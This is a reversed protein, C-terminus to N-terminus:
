GLEDERIREAEAEDDEDDEEEEDDEDEDDEEEEDLAADPMQASALTAESVLLEEVNPIENPDSGHPRAEHTTETARELWVAGLDEPAVADYGESQEGEAIGPLSNWVEDLSADTPAENAFPENSALLAAGSTEDQPLLRRSLADDINPDASRGIPLEASEPEVLEDSGTSVDVLQRRKLWSAAALGAAAGAM